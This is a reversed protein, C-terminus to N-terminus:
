RVAIPTYNMIRARRCKESNHTLQQRLIAQYLLAYQMGKREPLEAWKLDAFAIMLPAKSGQTAMGQTESKQAQSFVRSSVHMLVCFSLLCLSLFVRQV